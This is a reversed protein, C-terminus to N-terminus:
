NGMFNNVADGGGSGGGDGHHGGGAGDEDGYGAGDGSHAAKSYIDTNPGSSQQPTVSAPPATSTAVGNYGPTGATTNAVPTQPTSNAPLAVDRDGLMGTQPDYTFKCFPDDYMDKTVGESKLARLSHPVHGHEDKYEIIADGIQQYYTGCAVDQADQEPSQVSGDTGGPAMYKPYLYASLIVIIAMAVILGIITWQGRQQVRRFRVSRQM